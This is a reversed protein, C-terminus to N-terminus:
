RESEVACLHDALQRCAVQTERTNQEIQLALRIFQAVFLMTVAAILSGFLSGAAGALTALLNSPASVALVLSAVLVIGAFVLTLVALVEYIRAVLRLV